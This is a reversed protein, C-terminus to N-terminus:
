GVAPATFRALDAIGLRREIGAVRDVGIDFGDGKFQQREIAEFQESAEHLGGRRERRQGPSLNALV